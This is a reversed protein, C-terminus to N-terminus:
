HYIGWDGSMSGRGVNNVVWHEELKKWIIICVGIKVM